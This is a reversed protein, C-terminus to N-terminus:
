GADEVERDLQAVVDVWHVFSEWATVTRGDPHGEEAVRAHLPRLTEAVRALIWPELYGLSMTGGQDDVRTLAIWDGEDPAKVSVNVYM